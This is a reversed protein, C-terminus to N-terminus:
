KKVRRKYRRHMEVLRVGREYSCTASSGTKLDFLAGRSAFGCKDAIADLTLGRDQMDQIIQKWNM